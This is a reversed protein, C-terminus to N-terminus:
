RVSPFLEISGVQTRGGRRRSGPYTSVYSWHPQFQQGAGSSDVAALAAKRRAAPSRSSIGCRLWICCSIAQMEKWAELTQWWCSYQTQPRQTRYPPRRQLSRTGGSVTYYSCSPVVSETVHQCTVFRVATLRVCKNMVRVRNNTWLCVSRGYAASFSLAFVKGKGKENLNGGKREKERCAEEEDKGCQDGEEM